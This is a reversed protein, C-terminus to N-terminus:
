FSEISENRDENYDNQLMMREIIVTEKNERERIRVKTDRDLGCFNFIIIENFILSCILNIVHIFPYLYINLNFKEKKWITENTKFDVIYYGIEMINESIITHTPTFYYVTIWLGLHM